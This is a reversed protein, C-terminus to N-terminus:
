TVDVIFKYPESYLKRGDAKLYIARMKYETRKGSKLEPIGDWRDKDVTIATVQEKGSGLAMYTGTPKSEGLKRKPEMVTIIGTEDTFEFSYASEAMANVEQLEDSNNQVRIYLLMPSANYVFQRHLPEIYKDGSKITVSVALDDGASSSDMGMAMFFAAASVMLFMKGMKDEKHVEVAILASYLFEESLRSQNPLVHSACSDLASSVDSHTIEDNNCAVGRSRACRRISPKVTIM